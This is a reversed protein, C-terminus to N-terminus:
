KFVKTELKDVREKIAPLESEMRGALKSFSEQLSFQSQVLFIIGGAILTTMATTLLACLSLVWKWNSELKETM